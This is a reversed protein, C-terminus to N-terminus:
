YRVEVEVPRAHTLDRVYDNFVPQLLSLQFLFGQKHEERKAQNAKEDESWKSYALQSLANQIEVLHAHEPIGYDVTLPDSRGIAGVLYSITYEHADQPVPNLKFKMVPDIIGERYFSIKEQAPSFQTFPSVQSVGSPIIGYDQQNYDDFAIQVYPMFEEGTAKVIALPKGFDAVPVAPTGSELTYTDTDPDSTFTFTKVTWARGTNNLRNAM